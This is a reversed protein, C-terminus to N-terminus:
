EVPKPVPTKSVATSTMDFESTPSVQMSNRSIQSLHYLLDIDPEESEKWPEVDILIYKIVIHLSGGTNEDSEEPQEATPEVPNQKESLPFLENRRNKELLLRDAYSMSSAFQVDKLKLGSEPRPLPDTGASSYTKPPDQRQDIHPDSLSKPEPETQADM